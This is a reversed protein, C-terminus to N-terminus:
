SGLLIIALFNTSVNKVERAISVSVVAKQSVTMNYRRVLDKYQQAEAINFGYKANDDQTIYLKELLNPNSHYM